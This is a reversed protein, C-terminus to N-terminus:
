TLVDKWTFSISDNVQLSIGGFDAHAFQNGGQANGVTATQGGAGANTRAGGDGGVTVSVGVAHAAATTGLQSRTVTFTNTAQGGTVLEVENDVQIYFNLTSPIGTASGNTLTITTAAASQSSTAITTTGSLSVTDSLIAETITKASVLCTLSGSVQYTDALQTSSVLTSTGAVGVETAPTFLAVDSNASGTVLGTGWKINLPETQLGRMRGWLISRGSFTATAANAM